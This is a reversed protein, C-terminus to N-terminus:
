YISDNLKLVKQIDKVFVKQEAGESIFADFNIDCVWLQHTNIFKILETTDQKKNYQKTQAM